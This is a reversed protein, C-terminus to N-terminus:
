ILIVINVAYNSLLFGKPIERAQMLGLSTLTKHDSLAVRKRSLVCTTTASVYIIMM